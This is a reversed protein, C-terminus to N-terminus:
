RNIKKWNRNVFFNFILKKQELSNFILYGTNKTDNFCFLPRRIMEPYLLSNTQFIKVNSLDYKKYLIGSRINNQGYFKWYDVWPRPRCENIVSIAMEM